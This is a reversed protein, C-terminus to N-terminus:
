KLCNEVAYYCQEGPTLLGGSPGSYRLASVRDDNMVVNVRCFRTDSFSNGLWGGGFSTTRGSPDVTTNATGGFGGAGTTFTSGGGSNYTWVETRGESAKSQPPGMCSLVREKSFGVMAKQADSAGMSRQITCGSLAAIVLCAGLGLLIVKM